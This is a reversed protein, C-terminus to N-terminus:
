SKIITSPVTGSSSGVAIDFHEPIDIPLDIVNQLERLFTLPIIGRIGGGETIIARVGATDPKHVFPTQNPKGCLPCKELYFSWPELETSKGYSRTCQMCLSHHCDLTDEPARSFCSLCSINDYLDVWIDKFRSLTNQHLAIDNQGQNIIQFALECFAVEIAHALQPSTFGGVARDKTRSHDINLCLQYYLKRFM